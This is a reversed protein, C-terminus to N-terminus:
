ASTLLVHIEKEIDQLKARDETSESEAFRNLCYIEMFSTLLGPLAEQWAPRQIEALRRVVKDVVEKATDGKARKIKLRGLDNMVRMFALTSYKATAKKAPKLKGEFLRYNQRFLRLAVAVLVVLAKSDANQNAIGPPERRTCIERFRFDLAHGTKGHLNGFGTRLYGTLRDFQSWGHRADAFVCCGNM